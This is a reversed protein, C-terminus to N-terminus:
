KSITSRKEPYIFYFCSSVFPITLKKKKLRKWVLMSMIKIHM